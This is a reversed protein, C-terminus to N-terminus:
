TIRAMGMALCPTALCMGMSAFAHFFLVDVALCRHQLCPTKRPTWAFHNYSTNPLVPTTSASYCPTYFLLRTSDIRPVPLQLFPLFPILRRWSSKLHLSTFPLLNHHHHSFHTFTTFHFLTFTMTFYSRM